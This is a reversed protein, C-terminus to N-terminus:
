DYLTSPNMQPPPFWIIGLRERLVEKMEQWVLHCYGIEREMGSDQLKVAVEAEVESIIIKMRPDDEIPDHLDSCDEQALIARIRRRRLMEHLALSQDKYDPKPIKFVSFDIRRGGPRVDEFPKYPDASLELSITNKKERIVLGPLFRKIYKIPVPLHHLEDSRNDYALLDIYDLTASSILHLPIDYWWVDKSSNINAFHFTRTRPEANPNEAV